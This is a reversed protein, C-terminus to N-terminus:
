RARSIACRLSGMCCKTRFGKCSLAALNRFCIWGDNRHTSARGFRWRSRRPGHSSPIRGKMPDILLNQRSANLRRFSQCQVSLDLPDIGQEVSTRATGPYPASSWSGQLDPWGEPTKAPEIVHEPLVLLREKSAYPKYGSDPACMVRPNAVPEFHLTSTNHPVQAQSQAQAQTNSQNQNQAAASMPTLSLLAGSIAAALLSWMRNRM